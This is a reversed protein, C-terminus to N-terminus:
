ISVSATKIGMLPQTASRKPARVTKEVAIATKVSAETSQPRQPVSGCKIRARMRCPTPPAIITGTPLSITSRVAGLSFSVWTSAHIVQGASEASTM